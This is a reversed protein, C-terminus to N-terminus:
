FWFDVIKVYFEQIHRESFNALTGEEANKPQCTRSRSCDQSSPQKGHGPEAPLPRHHGFDEGEVVKENAKEEEQHGTEM